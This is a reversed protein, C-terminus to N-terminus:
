GDGVGEREGLVRAAADRLEEKARRVSDIADRLDSLETARIQLGERIFLAAAESRSKLAGTEVWADLRDLTDEDVRVMVVQDRPLANLAELSGGLRGSLCVLRVPGQGIVAPAGECEIGKERLLTQVRQILEEM